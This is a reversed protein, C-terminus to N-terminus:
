AASSKRKPKTVAKSKKPKSKANGAKSLSEQLVAVLDIVNSARVPAQVGAKAPRNKVKDDIM